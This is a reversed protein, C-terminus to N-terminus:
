KGAVTGESRVVLDLRDDESWLCIPRVTFSFEVPQYMNLIALDADGPANFDPHVYVTKVDRIVSRVAWTKINHKGM